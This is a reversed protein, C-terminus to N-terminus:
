SRPPFKNNYKFLHKPLGATLSQVLRAYWDSSLQLRPMNKGDHGAGWVKDLVRIDDPDTLDHIVGGVVAVVTNQDTISIICDM